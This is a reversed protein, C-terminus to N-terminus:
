PVARLRELHKPAILLEVKQQAVDHHRVAHASNFQRAFRPSQPRAHLDQEGRAIRSIEQLLVIRRVFKRYYALRKTKGFQRLAELCHQAFCLREERLATTGTPRELARDSRGAWKRGPSM